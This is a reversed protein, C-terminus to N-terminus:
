EESSLFYRPEIPDIEGMCYLCAGSPLVVAARGGASSVLGQNADIGVAVDFYPRL